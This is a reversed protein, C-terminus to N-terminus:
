TSLYKTKSINRKVTEIKLPDKVLKGLQLRLRIQEITEKSRITKAGWDKPKDFVSKSFEIKLVREFELMLYKDILYCYKLVQDDHIKNIVGHVLRNRYISTFDFFLKLLEKFDAHKNKISILTKNNKSLLLFITDLLQRNNQYTLSIVNQATQYKVNNIRLGILICRRFYGELYKHNRLFLDSDLSEPEEFLVKKLNKLSVM